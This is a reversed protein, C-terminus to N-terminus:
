TTRGTPSPGKYAALDVSTGPAFAYPGPQFVMWGVVVAMVVGAVIVIAALALAIQKIGM